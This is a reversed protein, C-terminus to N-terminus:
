NKVLKERSNAIKAMIYEDVEHALFCTVSGMKVPTPFSADFRASRPNIRDYISSKSISLRVVLQKIRLFNLPPTQQDM